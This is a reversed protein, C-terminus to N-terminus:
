NPTAAATHRGQSNYKKQHEDRLLVLDGLHHSILGELDLRTQSVVHQEVSVLYADKIASDDRTDILSTSKAFTHADANM